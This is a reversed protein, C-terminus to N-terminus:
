KIYQYAKDMIEAKKSSITERYHEEIESVLDTSLKAEKLEREMQDLLINFTDDVKDELKNSASMYRSSINALTSSNKGTKTAKYEDYANQVLTDLRILATEELSHFVPEYKKRISDETIPLLQGNPPDASPDVDSNNTENSHHSGSDSSSTGSGGLETQVQQSIADSMAEENSYNTVSSPTSIGSILSDFDFFDDAVGIAAPEIDINTFYHYTGYGGAALIFIISVTIILGKKVM